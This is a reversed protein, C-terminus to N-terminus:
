GVEMVGFLFSFHMFSVPVGRRRLAQHATAATTTAAAMQAVTATAEPPEPAVPEFLEDPDFTGAAEVPMSGCPTNAASLVAASVSGQGPCSPLPPPPPEVVGAAGAAGEVGDLSSPDEFGDNQRLARARPRGV